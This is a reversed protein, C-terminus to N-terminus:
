PPGTLFQSRLYGEMIPAFDGWAWEVRESATSGLTQAHYKNDLRALRELYENSSGLRVAAFYSAAMALHALYFPLNDAVREEEHAAHVIQVYKALADLVDESMRAGQRCRICENSTRARYPNLQAQAQTDGMM